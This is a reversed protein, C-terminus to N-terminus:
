NFFSGGNIHITQGTIYSASDGVLFEVLYSVEETKGFRKMPINELVRELYRPPIRRLMDTDIAGPAIINVTIGKSAFELALSKSFGVIGAKAAAYNSKGFAGTFGAISSFNIIRGWKQSIMGPIFDQCFGYLSKLNVDIVDDWASKPMRLFTSDEDYGANNILIDIRGHESLAQKAVERCHAYDKLDCQYCFCNSLDKTIQDADSQGKNYTFLVCDYYQSMRKVLAKGIGKSGGTIFVTKNSKKM